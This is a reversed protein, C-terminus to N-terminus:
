EHGNEHMFERNSLLPVTIYIAKLEKTLNNGFGNIFGANVKKYASIYCSVRDRLGPKSNGIFTVGVKVMGSKSLFLLEKTASREEADMKSYASNLASATTKGARYASAFSKSLEQECIERDSNMERGIAHADITTMLGLAMVLISTRKWESTM